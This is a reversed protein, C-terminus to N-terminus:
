RSPKRAASMPLSKVKTILDSLKGSGAIECAWIVEVQWGSAQLAEQNRADRMRNGNVKKSWYPANTKVSRTGDICTTCGHWFCGQVFVALRRGKFVIDPRGPLTKDHLRYRLGSKFFEQRVLLEPSTDTAKIAAMNASRRAKSISDV